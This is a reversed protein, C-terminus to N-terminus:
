GRLGRITTNPVYSDKRVVKAHTDGAEGDSHGRVEAASVQGSSARCTRRDWRMSCGGTRKKVREDGNMVHTLFM